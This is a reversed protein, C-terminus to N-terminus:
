RVDKPKWRADFNRAALKRLAATDIIWRSQHPEKKTGKRTVTQWAFVGQEVDDEPESDPITM